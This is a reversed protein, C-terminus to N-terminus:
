KGWGIGEFKFETNGEKLYVNRCSRTEKVQKDLSNKKKQLATKM